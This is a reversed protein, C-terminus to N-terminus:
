ALEDAAKYVTKILDTIKGLDISSFALRVLHTDLMIIGTGYKELLHQRLKEGDCKCKFSMFYGSNFPLPTLNSNGEFEKLAEKLTVYREEIKKIGKEKDQHYASDSMGKLLINQGASSCCSLSGRIAGMTKQELANYQEKTFGKCGYTIFGVRFGWVMEEKTAADGKIALINEHANCLFAFLSEKCVDKEFFLGFYADDIFVTIVKGKEAAKVLVDAIAKAEGAVPTYGTPNNPFNLMVSVKKGKVSDIAAALGDVNFGKEKFFPFTIMNVQRQEELVLNYNEWYLDPLVVSDGLDFFLSAALSISHTLGSTVIPTSVAAGKMSPNKKGMEELWLTRLEPVGGMPAYPFVESVKLTDGFQAKISPLFMANGGETAIGITANFNNAKQKAEASQVIIGKPVYMRKGYDSLATEAASNKLVENLTQALLNM